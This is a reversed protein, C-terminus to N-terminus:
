ENIFCFDFYACRKCLSKKVVPPCNEQEVIEILHNINQPIEQRDEDTLFVDETERMKPYELLGSAIPIGEQEFRYIYYKVQAIHAKERKNSKKVERILKRKPDYYDIKVGALEIQQWKNARQAYATEDILNGEAVFDSTHEMQIGHHFLWLKRHCLHYYAYHTATPTM